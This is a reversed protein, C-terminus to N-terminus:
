RVLQDFLRRTTDTTDAAFGAHIKSTQIITSRTATLWRFREPVELRAIPSKSDRSGHAIASFAALNQEILALNVKPDLAQIKPANLEYLCQIFRQRKCFVIVGANIFEEREVRPVIRIVGYEYLHCDHM